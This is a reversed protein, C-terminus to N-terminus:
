RHMAISSTTPVRQMSVDFQEAVERLTDGGKHSEVMMLTRKTRPPRDHTSM